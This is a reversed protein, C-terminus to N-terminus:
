IHIHDTNYIYISTIYTYPRVWGSEQPDKSSFFSVEQIPTPSARESYSGFMEDEGEIFESFSVGRKNM